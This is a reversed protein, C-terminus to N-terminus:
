RGAMEMGIFMLVTVAVVSGIIGVWFKPDGNDNFFKNGNDDDFM